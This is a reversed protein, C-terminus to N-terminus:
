PPEDMPESQAYTTIGSPNYAFPPRLLLPRVMRQGGMQFIM